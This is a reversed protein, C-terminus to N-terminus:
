NSSDRLQCCLQLAPQLNSQPLLSGHWNEYVPLSNELWASIKFDTVAVNGLNAIGASLSLTSTGSTKNINTVALDLFPELVFIYKVMTDTCGFTTSVILTVPYTGLETYTHSPNIQVSTGTTDGFNWLYSAAGSSLNSFGVVLPADGYTVDSTFSASPLPHVKVPRIVTDSCGANSTAILMINYQLTDNFTYFPNQQTSSTFDPFKWLWQNVTGQSIYSSDQLQYPVGVCAPPTQFHAVPLDHITVPLTYSNTCGAQTTATLTVNYTNV